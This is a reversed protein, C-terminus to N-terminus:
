GRTYVCYKGGTDVVRAAALKSKGRHSTAAKKAATKTKSCSKLTYRKGNFMRTKKPAGAVSTKGRKSKRRVVGKKRPM